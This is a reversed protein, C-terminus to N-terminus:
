EDEVSYKKMQIATHVKLICIVLLVIAMIMSAVATLRCRMGEAQCPGIVVTLIPILVLFLMEFVATWKKAETGKAGFSIISSLFLPVALVKLAASYWYCKMPIEMGEITELKGGCAPFCLLLVFYLISGALCSVSLIKWRRSLDM